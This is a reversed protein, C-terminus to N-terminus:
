AYTNVQTGVGGTTALAPQPLAAILQAAANEQARMSQKLVSVAAAGQVSGPSAASANNVLSSPIANM